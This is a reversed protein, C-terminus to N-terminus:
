MRIRQLHIGAADRMGLYVIGGPGFGIITMNAPVQVRDVVKGTRDIVDYLFGPTPKTPLTRVWIRNDADARVSNAGFVPKYDPLESPQVFQPVPMPGGGPGGIVGTVVPASGGAPPAGDVPRTMTMTVVQPTGGAGIPAASQAAGTTRQSANPAAAAMRQMMVNRVSDIYAAKNEDSLRQWDYPIKEAVTHKGGADVFEVHYDRGRVFAITGDSMVAWDDVVPLPNILAQARVGGNADTTSRITIKPTKVFGVTDLKRTALDVRQVAASEPPTPPVFPQGPAPPAFNIRFSRYVLRGTADFAPTGFTGGTLFGADDARPVAMVRAIKGQGDIMLMSMSAPDVFLTSDGRYAILGGGRAGYNGEVSASDAVVAIRKLTSDLLLIRRGIQDNVLVNGNPLHRVAALSSLVEASTASPAPLVRVPPRAQGQAVGACAALLILTRNM